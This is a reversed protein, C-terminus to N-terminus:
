HVFAKFAIVIGGIAAVMAARVLARVVPAGAFRAAWYGYFGILGLGGWKAIAFATDLEILHVAALLFFVAPFGVGLAVAGASELMRSLQRRTVRHRESTEAGVVESYVEALAVTVASMLLWAIMVVAGPPHDSLAVVLTLGVIAGYVIRSVMRSSLHAELSARM